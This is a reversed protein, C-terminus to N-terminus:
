GSSWWPLGQILTRFGSASVTLYQSDTPLTFFISRVVACEGSALSVSGSTRYPDSSLPEKERRNSSFQMYNQVSLM